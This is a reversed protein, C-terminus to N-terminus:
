SIKMEGLLKFSTKQTSFVDHKQDDSLSRPMFQFAVKKRASCNSSDNGLQCLEDAIMRVTLCHDEQIWERVKVTLEDNRVSIPCGPWVEDETSQVSSNFQAYWRFTQACSLCNDGYVQKTLEM